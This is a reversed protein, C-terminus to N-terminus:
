WINNQLVLGELDWWVKIIQTAEIYFKGYNNHEEIGTAITLINPDFIIDNPNMQVEDVLLRYSRECIAVKRDCDAAQLNSFYWILAVQIDNYLSSTNNHVGEPGGKTTQLLLTWM